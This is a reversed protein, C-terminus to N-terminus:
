SWRMIELDVVILRCEVHRGNGPLWAGVLEHEHYHSALVLLSNRAPHAAPNELRRAAHPPDGHMSRNDRLCRRYTPLARRRSRGLCAALQIRFQLALSASVRLPTSSGSRGIALELMTYDFDQM